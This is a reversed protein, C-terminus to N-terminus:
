RSQLAALALFVAAVLFMTLGTMITLAWRADSSYRKSSWLAALGIPPVLILLTGLAVPDEYWARPEARQTDNAPKAPKKGMAARQAEAFLRKRQQEAVEEPSIAEFARANRQPDSRRFPPTAPRHAPVVPPVATFPKPPPLGRLFAAAEPPVPLFV